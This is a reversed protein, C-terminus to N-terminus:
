CATTTRRATPATSTSTPSCGRTPSCRRTTRRRGCGCSVGSTSTRRATARRSAAAKSCAPTRRRHVPRIRPRASCSRRISRRRTGCAAAAAASTARRPSGAAASRSSCRSTGREARLTMDLDAGFPIFSRAPPSSRLRDALRVPVPQRRRSGAVSQRADATARHIIDAAWPSVNNSNLLSQLEIVDYALGYSARISTRGQGTPDFSVGVRPAFKNWSAGFRRTRRRLRRCRFRGREPESLQLRGARGPVGRQAAGGQLARRSTTCASAATSTRRAVGDPM